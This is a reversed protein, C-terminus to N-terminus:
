VEETEIVQPKDLNEHLYLDKTELLCQIVPESDKNRSTGSM